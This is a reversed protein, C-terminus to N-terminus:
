RDDGEPSSLLKGLENQRETSWFQGDLSRWGDIAEALAASLARARAVVPSHECTLAHARVADDDDYVTGGEVEGIAKLCWGCARPNKAVRESHERLIAILRAYEARVGLVERGIELLVAVVAPELAPAGDTGADCYAACMAGSVSITIPGRPLLEALRAYWADSNGIALEALEMRLFSLALNPDQGRNM